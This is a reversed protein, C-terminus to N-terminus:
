ALRRETKQAETEEPLGLSAADDPHYREIMGIIEPKRLPKTLYHDLGAALVAAQETDLAHATLAVIPVHGGTEAEMTRITHSATKGDMKPMAIDMFILDPVQERFADVAEEGNNAFVLDINLSKVMKSFILRNTANDEAALIRMRRATKAPAAQPSGTTTRPRPRFLPLATPTVDSDAPEPAFEPEMPSAGRTEPTRHRSSAFPPLTTKPQMPEVTDDSLEPAPDQEPTPPDYSRAKAALEDVARIAKLFESTLWPRQLFADPQRPWGGSPAVTSGAGIVIFPCAIGTGRESFQHHAADSVILLDHDAGVPGESLEPSDRPTVSLGMRSLQRELFARSAELPDVLLVTRLSSLTGAPNRGVVETVPMHIEFSFCSGKGDESTVWIRGGMLEVLRKSIALGLGTGEYERNRASDVQQFEGFIEDLRNAPIGIGTDEIDIAVRAPEGESGACGSVRILVHGESTFKVANGILNTMVQRIRGPDGEFRSPLDLDYDMLLALGKDRAIPQLLMIVEHLCRELDFPEPHLTLKDAEIKSYDLVDNIIVLLAEASNKITDVYLAQEGVLETERLLDAMGVVGNMPTRIEHSMNALFASKARNAAEAEARAAKLKKEYEVAETINLGLSVMDGDQGRRDVLRIYQDNWLRIVMPDPQAVNWREIMTQRWTAPDLDGTNVIGEDTLLQLVTIYNIGPAVEELGDFVSLWSTNAAIMCNDADFIAFGDTITQISHWLRREAIEIKQNAVTLETKVRQNETRAQALDARTEVIQGQLDLARRGLKRNAAHLEAQKLELLREAALRGRREEALKSALSM